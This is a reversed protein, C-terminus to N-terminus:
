VHASALCWGAPNRNIIVYYYFSPFTTSGSELRGSTVRLPLRAPAGGPFHTLARSAHVVVMDHARSAHVVM